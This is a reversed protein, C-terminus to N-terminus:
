QRMRQTLIRKLVSRNILTASDLLNNTLLSLQLLYRQLSSFATSITRRLIRTRRLLKPSAIILLNCADMRHLITGNSNTRNPRLRALTLRYKTPVTHKLKAPTPGRRLRKTLNRKPPNTRTRVKIRRNQSNYLSNLSSKITSLRHRSSTTTIMRPANLRKLPPRITNANIM